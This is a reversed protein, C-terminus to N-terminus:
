RPSRAARFGVNHFSMSPEASTRSACALELIPQNFAGGKLVRQSGSLPGRPNRIEPERSSVASYWDSCWEKVNGAMDSLGYANSSFSGVRHPELFSGFCARDRPDENGWPYQAGELGGRAAKEWEAETPLSKGAWDCYATADNWSVQVVPFDEIDEFGHRSPSPNRWSLGPVSKWAGDSWVYGSGAREANTRYGTAAVFRAFQRNTVEYRDIRFSDVFVRRPFAAFSLEHTAGMAFEGGEILVMGQEDNMPRASPTTKVPVPRPEDRFDVRSLVSVSVLLAILSLGFRLRRNRLSASVIPSQPLNSSTKPLPKETLGGLSVPQGLAKRLHHSFEEASSYRDSIPIAVSRCVVEALSTSCTRELLGRLSRREPADLVSLVRESVTESREEKHPPQEKSLTQAAEKAEALGLPTSQLVGLMECLVVGMSFVDSATGVAEGRAQEPSWYRPTGLCSGVQTLRDVSGYDKALSLDAIKACGDISFLINAPKLDRHVVGRKHCADLGALCNLAVRVAENVSLKPGIKLREQLTGGEMCEAALYPFGEIVGLEFVKVVHPHEIALLLEGERQFRALSKPHRHTLIKIAVPRETLRDTAKFVVGMSGTGLVGQVLFRNHGELIGAITSAATQDPTLNNSLPTRNKDIRHIFQSRCLPCETITDGMTPQQFPKGCSPCIDEIM